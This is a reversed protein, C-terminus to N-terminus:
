SGNREELLIDEKNLYKKDFLYQLLEEPTSFNFCEDYFSFEPDIHTVEPGYFDVNLWYKKDGSNDRSFHIGLQTEKENINTLIVYYFIKNHGIRGKLENM